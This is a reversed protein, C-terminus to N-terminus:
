KGLSSDFINENEATSYHFYVGILTFTDRQRKSILYDGFKPYTFKSLNAIGTFLFHINWIANRLIGVAPLKELKQQYLWASTFNKRPQNIRDQEM